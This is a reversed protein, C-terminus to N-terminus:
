ALRQGKISESWGGSSGEYSMGDPALARVERLYDKKRVLIRARDVTIIM